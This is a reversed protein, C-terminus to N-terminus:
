RKADESSSRAVTDDFVNVPTSESVPDTSILTLRLPSGSPLRGLPRTPLDPPGDEPPPGTPLGAPPILRVVSTRVLTPRLSKKDASSYALCDSFIGLDGEADSLRFGSVDFGPEFWVVALRYQGKEGRRDLIALVPRPSVTPSPRESKLWERASRLVALRYEAERLDYQGRSLKKEISSINTDLFYKANDFARVADPGPVANTKRRDCSCMFLAFVLVLAIATARARRLNLRMAIM